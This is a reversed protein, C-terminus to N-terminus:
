NVGSYSVVGPVNVGFKLVIRSCFRENRVAPVTPSVPALLLPTMLGRPTVSSLTLKAVNGDDSMVGAGVLM